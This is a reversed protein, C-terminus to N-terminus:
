MGGYCKGLLIHLFLVDNSFTTKDLFNGTDNQYRGVCFQDQRHCTAFQSEEGDIYFIEAQQLLKQDHSKVRHTINWGTIVLSTGNTPRQIVPGVPQRRSTFM